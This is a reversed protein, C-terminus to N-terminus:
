STSGRWSLNAGGPAFRQNRWQGCYRVVRCFLLCLFIYLMM